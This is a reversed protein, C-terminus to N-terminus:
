NPHANKKIREVDKEMSALYSHMQVESALKELIQRGPHLDYINEISVLKKDVEQRLRRLEGEFDSLKKKITANSIEDNIKENSNEILLDQFEFWAEALEMPVASKSVQINELRLLYDRLQSPNKLTGYAQNIFSMREMSLSKIQPTAASFRDPHLLRSLAYFKKELEAGNVHFRRDLGFALFYDVSIVPQPLGCKVCVHQSSDDNQEQSCHVCKLQSVPAVVVRASLM